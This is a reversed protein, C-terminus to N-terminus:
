KEELSLKCKDCWKDPGGECTRRLHQHSLELLWGPCNKPVVMVDFGAIALINVRLEVCFGFIARDTICALSAKCDLCVKDTM